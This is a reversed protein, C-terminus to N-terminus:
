LRLVGAVVALVALALVIVTLTWIGQRALVVVGTLFFVGLAFLLITANDLHQGAVNM